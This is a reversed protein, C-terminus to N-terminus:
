AAMAEVLKNRFSEVIEGSEDLFEVGELTQSISKAKSPDKKWDPDLETLLSQFLKKHIELNRDYPTLKIKLKKPKKEKPEKVEKVEKSAKDVAQVYAELPTDLVIEKTCLNKLHDRITIADEGEELQATFGIKESEYNGKNITIDVRVETIRM